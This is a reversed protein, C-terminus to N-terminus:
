VLKAMKTTNPWLPVKTMLKIIFLVGLALPCTLVWDDSEWGRAMTAKQSTHTHKMTYSLLTSFTLSGELGGFLSLINHCNWCRTSMQNDSYLQDKCTFRTELNCPDNKKKTIKPTNKSSKKMWSNPPTKRQNMGQLCKIRNIYSIKTRSDQRWTTHIMKKKTIKPTNKGSKKDALKSSNKM